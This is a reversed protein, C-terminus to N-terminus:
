PIKTNEGLIIIFDAPAPLSPLALTLPTTNQSEAQLLLRLRDYTLFDKGETLDYIYTRAVPKVPANGVYTIVFDQQRLIESITKALGVISTGNLIAIRAIFKQTPTSPAIPTAFINQVLTRIATFTGDRPELIYAGNVIRATLFNDPADSLTMRRITDHNIKKILAAFRLGEGLTINTSLHSSLSEIIRAIRSPSTLTPWSLMKEKVALLVNQQRKTRSFDSGESGVARRSRVYKLALAGDMDHVGKEVILHEYRYTIPYADEKGRVPYHFDELRNEVTVTIGGITDVLEVFGQFDVRLVYPIPIDLLNELARRTAEGGIGEGTSEAFSGISNIKRWENNEVRVSLDRPISILAAAGTSPQLSALLITDTLYGGEHNAGGIGLLLVNVRDNREGELTIDGSRLLRRLTTFLPTSTASKERGIMLMGGLIGVVLIALSLLIVFGRVSPGRPSPPLNKEPLFNIDM